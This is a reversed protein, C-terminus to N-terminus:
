RVFLQIDGQDQLVKVLIARLPASPGPPGAAVFRALDPVEDVM